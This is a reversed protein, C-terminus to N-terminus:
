VEKHNLKRLQLLPSLLIQRMPEIHFHFHPLGHLASRPTALVYDKIVTVAGTM